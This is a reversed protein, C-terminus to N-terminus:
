FDHLTCVDTNCVYISVRENVRPCMPCMCECRFGLETECVSLCVCVSVCVFVCLWFYHLIKCYCPFLEEKSVASEESSLFLTMHQCVAARLPFCCM